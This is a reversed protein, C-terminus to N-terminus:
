LELRTIGRTVDKGEGREDLGERFLSAGKWDGRSFACSLWSGSLWLSCETAWPMVTCAM